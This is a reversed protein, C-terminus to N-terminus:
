DYYIGSALREVRGRRFSVARVRRSDDRVCSRSYTWMEGVVQPRIAVLASMATGDAVNLSHSYTSRWEGEVFEFWVFKGMVEDDLSWLISLPEGLRARVSDAADGPSVRRYKAHTFGSPYCTGIMPFLPIAELGDIRAVAYAEAPGGLGWCALSLMAAACSALVAAVFAALRRM